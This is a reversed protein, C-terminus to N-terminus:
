QGYVFSQALDHGRRAHTSQAIVSAVGKHSRGLAAANQAYDANTCVPLRPIRIVARGSVMVAVNIRAVTNAPHEKAPM